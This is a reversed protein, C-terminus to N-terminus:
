FNSKYIRIAKKVIHHPNSCLRQNCSMKMNRSYLVENFILEYALMRISYIRPGWSFCPRSYMWCKTPDKDKIIEKVKCMPSCFLHQLHDKLKILAMMESGCTRCPLTVYLAISALRPHSPLSTISHPLLVEKDDKTIRFRWIRTMNAGITVYCYIDSNWPQNIEMLLPSVM